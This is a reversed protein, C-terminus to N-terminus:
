RTEPQVAQMTSLQKTELFSNISDNYQFNHRVLFAYYDSIIKKTQSDSDEKMIKEYLQKIEPLLTNNDYDFVPSNDMGTILTSLYMSYYGKATNCFCTNPFTTIFNEWRRIRQYLEDFSILMGADESFGQKLEDKRINLFDRSGKSVRNQFKQFEYDYLADIYYMGETMFIGLGCEALNDKFATLEASTSDKDLQDIISKYKIELSDSLHNAISYYKTEFLLLISDNNSYNVPICTNIYDIAFPISSLKTEPLQNLFIKFSNIDGKINELKAHNLTVLKSISHLQLLNETISDSFQNETNVESKQSNCSILILFLFASILRM